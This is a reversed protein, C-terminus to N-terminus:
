NKWIEKWWHKKEPFILIYNKVSEEKIEWEREMNKTGRDKNETDNM